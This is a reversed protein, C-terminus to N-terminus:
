ALNLAALIQHLFRHTDCTEDNCCLSTFQLNDTSFTSNPPSLPDSPTATEPLPNDVATSSPNDTKIKAKAVTVHRPTSLSPTAPPTSFPEAAPLTIDANAPAAHQAQLPTDADSASRSLLLLVASTIILVIIAAFRLQSHRPAAPVPPTSLSPQQLSETYIHELESDTLGPSHLVEQKYTQWTERLSTTNDNKKM